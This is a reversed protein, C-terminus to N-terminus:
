SVVGCWVSEDGSAFSIDIHLRVILVCLELLVDALNSQDTIKEESEINCSSVYSKMEKEEGSKECFM